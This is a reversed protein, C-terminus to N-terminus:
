GKSDRVEIKKVARKQIKPITLKLVGKDCKAEVDDTAVTEPLTFQRFFNGIFRETRTYGANEETKEAKREGDITLINGEINVNIDKSDVGPIDATIIYKDDTTQIDVHPSWLNSKETEPYVLNNLEDQLVNLLNNGSRYRIISM